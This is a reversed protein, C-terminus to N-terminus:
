IVDAFTREMRRFVMVGAALLVVSMVMSYVFAWMPPFPTTLVSWRWAQLAAALPNLYYFYFLVPHKSLITTSYAVPSAYMLFQLVVPLIVAVDRYQVCLASSWMGIGLSLAMFPLIMVVSLALQPGVEAHQWVMIVALMVAAVAADVLCGIAGSLPLLLRPFYVKSVMTSNGVLIGGIKNIINAFLQWAVLSCFAYLFMSVPKGDAAPDMPLKALSGFVMAFIGAAILPQLVVWSVGLATQKYRLRIDRMVLSGLLDRFRWMEPFDVGIWGKRPRIKRLPMAPARATGAEEYTGNVTTTM